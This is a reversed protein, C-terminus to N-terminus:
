RKNGKKCSASVWDLYDKNGGIIPLAIVECVEYSHAQKVARTLAALLSRRTKIVLLSEKATDIKGQWWFFSDIEKVINVCACLKKELLMKALSHPEKGKPATVFVVCNGM